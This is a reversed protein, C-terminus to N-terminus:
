VERAREPEPRPRSLESTLWRMFAAYEAARSLFVRPGAPDARLRGIPDFSVSTLSFRVFQLELAASLTLADHQM